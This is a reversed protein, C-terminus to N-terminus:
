GLHSVLWDAAEDPTCDRAWMTLRLSDVTEAWCRYCRFGPRGDHTDQVRASPTADGNTHNGPKPCHYAREQVPEAGPEAGRPVREVISSNVGLWGLVDEVPISAAMLLHKQRPSPEVFDAVADRVDGRSERRSQEAVRRAEHLCIGVTGVIGDEGVPLTLPEDGAVLMPFRDMGSRARVSAVAVLQSLAFATQEPAVFRLRRAFRAVSLAQATFGETLDVVPM